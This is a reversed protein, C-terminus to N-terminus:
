LLFGCCIMKDVNSLDTISLDSKWKGFYQRQKDTQCYEIHKRNEAFANSIVLAVDIGEDDLSDNIYVNNAKSFFAYEEVTMEVLARKPEDGVLDLCVLVNM